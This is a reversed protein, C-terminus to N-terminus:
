KPIEEKTRVMIKGFTQWYKITPIESISVMGFLGISKALDVICKERLFLNGKKGDYSGVYPCPLIQYKNKIRDYLHPFQSVGYGHGLMSVDSYKFYNAKLGIQHIKQPSKKCGRM